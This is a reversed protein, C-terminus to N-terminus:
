MLNSREQPAIGAVSRDPLPLWAALEFQSVEGTWVRGCRVFCDTGTRYMTSWTLGAMMATLNTTRERRTRESLCADAGTSSATWAGTGCGSCVLQDIDPAVKAEPNASRIAPDRCLQVVGSRWEDYNM